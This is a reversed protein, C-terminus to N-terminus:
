NVTFAAHDGMLRLGVMYNTFGPGLMWHEFLLYKCGLCLRARTDLSSKKLEFESFNKTTLEKAVM